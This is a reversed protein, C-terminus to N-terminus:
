LAAILGLTIMKAWFYPNSAYKEAESAALLLGMSIM